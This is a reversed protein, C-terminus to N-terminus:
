TAVRHSHGCVACCGHQSPTIDSPTDQFFLAYRTLRNAPTHDTTAANGLYFTRRSILLGVTKRKGRDHPTICFLNFIIRLPVTNCMIDGIRIRQNMVRVHIRHVNGRWGITVTFVREFHCCRPFRTTHFFRKCWTVGVTQCHNFSELLGIYRQKNRIIAARQRTKLLHFLPQSQAFNTRYSVNM